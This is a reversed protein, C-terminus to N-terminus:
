YIDKAGIYDLRPEIKRKRGTISEVYKAMEKDYCESCEDQNRRIKVGCACKNIELKRINCSNCRGVRGDLTKDSKAFEQRKFLLGCNNCGKKLSNTCTQWKYGKFFPKKERISSMISPHSFDDKALDFASMYRKIFNGQLDFQDIVM